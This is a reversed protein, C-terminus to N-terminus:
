RNFGGAHTLIFKRVEEQIASQEVALLLHGGRNFPILRSGPIHAAAYKANHFLQLSDDMAHLILTPARIAAVRGNPMAAKNDFFVGAYRPSVPAMYDILRNVLTRQETTLDTIVSDSAGMLRILQKRLFKRVIWYLIEFKFITTLADGKQNAEAQHADSPTAVGCSVLTLSSVCEPYRAAFLLASPGGHSLAVVAVKPLGLRDLLHVYADAQDDFTAGQRFTSRLYGFRSPAIWNFGDGLIATALLAGQDYGGGSGHVVLVPVGSGGRTFEIAGLPSSFLASNGTIRAYARRTDIGFWIAIVVVVGLLALLFWLM